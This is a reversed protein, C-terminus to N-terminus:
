QNQEKACLTCIPDIAGPHALIKNGCAYCKNEEFITKGTM